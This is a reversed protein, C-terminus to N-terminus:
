QKVELSCTDKIEHICDSDVTVKSGFFFFDTVTETTEEDIRWSSIPVSAM